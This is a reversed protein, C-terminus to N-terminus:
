HPGGVSNTAGSTSQALVEAPIQGPRDPIQNTMISHMAAKEKKDAYPPEGSFIEMGLSYIDGDTTHQGEDGFMEPATWRLTMTNGSATATFQLTTDGGLTASGFDILMAHGEDSVLINPGKLDGHVVHNRHLQRLAAAVDICLSLRDVEPYKNVYSRVDGYEMWPSIMAIQGRYTALGLLPAIRPHKCKSWTYLERATRKLHKVEEDNKTGCSFIAKIAVSRGDHLQGLYIDSYGGRKNVAPSCRQLDLEHTLDQCGHHSLRAIIDSISSNSGIVDAIENTIRDAEDSQFVGEANEESRGSENNSERSSYSLTRELGTGGPIHREPAGYRPPYAYDGPPQYQHGAHATGTMATPQPLPFELPRQALSTGAPSPMSVNAGHPAPFGNVIPTFVETSPLESAISPPSASYLCLHKLAIRLTFYPRPQFPRAPFIARRLNNKDHLPLQQISPVLDSWRRFLDSFSSPCTSSELRQPSSGGNSHNVLVFPFHPHSLTATRYLSLAYGRSQDPTFDLEQQAELIAQEAHFDFINATEQENLTVSYHYM